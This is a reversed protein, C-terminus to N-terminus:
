KKNTATRKAEELAKKAEEEKKAAAVAMAEYMDGTNKQLTNLCSGHKLYHQYTNFTKPTFDKFTIDLKWAEPWLIEKYNKYLQAKTQLYIKATAYEDSRYKGIQTASLSMQCWILERKGVIEVYYVNPSQLIGFPLQVQYAGAALAQLFRYNRVLYESNKNILYFTTKVDTNNPLDQKYTPSGPINKFMAAFSMKNDKNGGVANKAMNLVGDATGAGGGRGTTFPTETPNIYIQNDAILPLEFTHIFFGQTFMRQVAVFPNTYTDQLNSDYLLEPHASYQQVAINKAGNSIGNKVQNGGSTIFSALLFGLGKGSAVFNSGNQKKIENTYSKITTLAQGLFTQQYPQFQKVIMRQVKPKFDQFDKGYYADEKWCYDGNSMTYISKFTSTGKESNESYTNIKARYVAARGRIDRIKNSVEQVTYKYEDPLKDEDTKNLGIWKAASDLLDSGLTKANVVTNGLGQVTSILGM